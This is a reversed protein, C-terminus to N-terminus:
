GYLILTSFYWKSSPASGLGYLLGVCWIAVINLELFFNFLTILPNIHLLFNRVQFVLILQDEDHLLLALSWYCTVPTACESIVPRLVEAM